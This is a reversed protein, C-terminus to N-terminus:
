KAEVQLVVRFGIPGYVPESKGGRKASGGIDGRFVRITGQAPGSPDELPSKSYYDESYWDACWEWALGYMDFLGWGNPEKQGVPHRTVDPIFGGVGRWAYRDLQGDGFFYPSTSGARCAYEWQAETPLYYTRGFQMELASLRECFEVANPWTVGIMPVGLGVKTDKPNWSMVRSYDRLTVLHAGLYFPRTIRVQHQPEADYSFDLGFVRIKEWITTPRFEKPSGMTFEGAPIKVFTMGISNIITAPLQTWDCEPPPPAECSDPRNSVVPSGRDSHVAEEGMSASNAATELSRNDEHEPPQDGGGSHSAVLGSRTATAEAKLTLIVSVFSPWERLPRWQSGGVPCALMDSSVAGGLMAAALYAESYPGESQGGKALWWHRGMDSSDCNENKANDM